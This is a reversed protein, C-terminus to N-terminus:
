TRSSKSRGTSSHHCEAQGAWGQWGTNWSVMSLLSTDVASPISDQWASIFTTRFPTDCLSSPRTVPVSTFHVPVFHIFAYGPLSHMGCVQGARRGAPCSAQVRRCSHLGPQFHATYHVCWGSCHQLITGAPDLDSSHWPQGGTVPM